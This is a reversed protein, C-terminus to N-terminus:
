TILVKSVLQLNKVMANDPSYHSTQAYFNTDSYLTYLFKGLFRAM